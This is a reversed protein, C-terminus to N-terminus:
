NAIDAGVVVDDCDSWGRLVAKFGALLTMFLTVGERRSLERLGATLEAALHLRQHAGRRPDVAPRPGDAPLLLPRCGALRRRWYALHSELVEGALWQRQWAAFDAYQVPLEPLPSPREAALAPYLAQLEGLLVQMSWADSVIHHMAFILVHEGAGLRTLLLRLLPGRGLGFPRREEALMLQRLQERQDHRPLDSLDAVPLAVTEAEGIEQVPRGEVERFCARLAEHRRVVETFCAALVKVELRGLLSVAGSQAYASSGPDLQELFWLRQQAFSLPLDSRQTLREIPATPRVGERGRLAADIIRALGAVTPEEFLRRLPVDVALSERIRSVVRTALLSHGGIAFFHDLRGVPAIKLVEEWIGAVVEEVATRPVSSEAEGAGAVKGPAPLARRDVKGNSSLPLSDLRIYLSPIMYAPLLEALHRRLENAGPQAGDAAVFYACLSPDAESGRVIVVCERVGAHRCLAAEVEGPEIRFGRIKVQHDTRGLFELAGDPRYRALDGTRYLREGSGTCPDPIFREATLDPRGLYGRALGDGGICLEGPVGLPMTRMGPDLVHLRTNAIPRGLPVTRGAPDNAVAHLASWVTTETPGYLNWLNRCKGVLESALDAPMAEAGCLATPDATGLGGEALWLRWHAPTAQVVTVGSSALLSRLRVPSTALDRDGLVICAGAALPLFVELISIDFTFTTLALLRDGAIMGPRELMSALFSVVSGHRVQVGKPRGTSGSTYMVYALHDPQVGAPGPDGSEAEEALLDELTVVGRRHHLPLHPLVAAETVVLPCGADALVFALREQPHSPDLPLYAGGAKLIGLLAAVAGASRELLVGVIVEPGVGLARLRLALREARRDLDLYTTGQGADLIALTEPRRRAQEEFLHHICRGRLSPTVTTNWE